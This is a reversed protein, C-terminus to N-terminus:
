IFCKQKGLIFLANYLQISAQLGPSSAEQIVFFSISHHHKKRKRKPEEETLSKMFPSLLMWVPPVYIEKWFIFLFGVLKAEMLMKTHSITGTRACVCEAIHAYNDRFTFYNVHQFAHCLEYLKPKGAESTPGSIGHDSHATLLGLALLQTGRAPVTSWVCLVGCCLWTPFM